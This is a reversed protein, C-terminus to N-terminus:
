SQNGPAETVHRSIYIGQILAMLLTLGLLGYLKFNVWTAESFNYVVYLNLAGILAFNAVWLLNLRRWIVQPLVIAEGLLKEVLTQTGFFQSVLFGMALLWNLITVKWQIFLADRLLLTIGGFVLVLVGSVLMIRNVTRTRIWQVAIQITMVVMIAITAAFMADDASVFKGYLQYVGFFVIIPLFDFLLKMIVIASFTSTM